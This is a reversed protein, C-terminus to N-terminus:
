KGFTHMASVTANVTKLNRLVGVMARYAGVFEAPSSKVRDVVKEKWLLDYEAQVVSIEDSVLDDADLLDDDSDGLLLRENDKDLSAAPLRRGCAVLYM